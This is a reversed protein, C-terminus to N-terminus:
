ISLFCKGEWDCFWLRFPGRRAEKGNKFERWSQLSRFDAEDIVTKWFTTPSNREQRYAFHWEGKEDPEIFLYQNEGIIIYSQKKAEWNNRVFKRAKERDAECKQAEGSKDEGCYSYQGGFEYRSLDRGATVTNEEMKGYHTVFIPADSEIQPVAVRVETWREHITRFFPVSALGLALTLLMIRFKDYFRKM